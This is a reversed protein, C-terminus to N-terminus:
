GRRIKSFFFSFEIDYFFYRGVLMIYLMVGLSWVDVVKGLYSGSINLIESSVYASCGYKDFFFDDDGRLIYVDELSELKVRIRCFFFFFM